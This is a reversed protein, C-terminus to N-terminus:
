ANELIEKLVDRVVKPNARGATEDMVQGMLAGFAKEKGAKFDEAAKPNEAVAKKAAERLLPEDDLRALGLEEVIRAPETSEDLMRPLVQKAAATRAVGGEEVLGILGALRAPPLDLGAVTRKREHALHTVEGSIWHAAQPPAV